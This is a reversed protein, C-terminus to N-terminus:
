KWRKQTLFMKMFSSIVLIKEDSLFYARKASRQSHCCYPELKFLRKQWLQSFEVLITKNGLKRTMYSYIDGKNNVVPKCYIGAALNIQNSGIVLWINRLFCKRSIQQEQGGDDGIVLWIKRNRIQWNQSKIRWANMNSWSWTFLFWNKQCFNGECLDAYIDPFRVNCPLISGQQQKETGRVYIATKTWLAEGIDVSINWMQHHHRHRHYM